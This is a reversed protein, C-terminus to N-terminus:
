MKYYLDDGFGLHGDDDVTPNNWPKYQSSSANSLNGPMGNPGMSFIVPRGHFNITKADPYLPLTGGGLTNPQIEGVSVFFLYPNGWPDLPYTDQDEDRDPEATDEFWSIPGDSTASILDYTPGPDTVDFRSIISPRITNLEEITTFNQVNTFPGEWTNALVSRSVRVLNGASDYAFFPVLASMDDTTDNLASPEQGLNDLDQLRFYKGTKAQALGIALAINRMEDKTAQIKAKEIRDRLMPVLIMALIAIVTAVAIIEVASFGLRKRSHLSAFLRNM